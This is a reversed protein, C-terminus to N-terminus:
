FYILQLKVVTEYLNNRNRCNRSNQHSRKSKKHIFVSTIYRWFTILLFVKFFLRIKRQTKTLWQRFFCYGSGSGYTFPVSGRNRIRVLIDRNWLVITFLGLHCQKNLIFLSVLICYVSSPLNDFFALIILLPGTHTDAPPLM